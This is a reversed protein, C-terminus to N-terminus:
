RPAFAFPLAARALAEFGSAGFGPQIAKTVVALLIALGVLGLVWGHRALRATM